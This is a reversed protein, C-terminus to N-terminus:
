LSPWAMGLRTVGTDIRDLTPRLDAVAISHGSCLLCLFGPDADPRIGAYALSQTQVAGVCITWMVPQPM